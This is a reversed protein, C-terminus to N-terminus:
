LSKLGENVCAHYAMLAHVAVSKGFRRPRSPSVYKENARIRRNTERILLSKDVLIESNVCEADLVGGENLYTGM